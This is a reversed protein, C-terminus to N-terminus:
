CGCGCSTALSGPPSWPPASSTAQRLEGPGDHFVAGATVEALRQSPTALWDQVTVGPRPDFGLHGTLWSGLGMIQVRHRAVLDGTVTFAVPYGRFAAPLRAARSPGSHDPGLFLQLRPGWDHDTSRETDFGLVESGPGLRAAAYRRAPFEAELLPRVAEAYFEGALRLGPIFTGKVCTIIGDGPGGPVQNERGAV